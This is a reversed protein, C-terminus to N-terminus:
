AWGDPAIITVDDRIQYVTGSKPLKDDTYDAYVGIDVGDLIDSLDNEHKGNVEPIEEGLGIITNIFMKPLGDISSWNCLIGDSGYIVIGSEQGTLQYLSNM